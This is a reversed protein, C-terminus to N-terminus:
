TGLMSMAQWSLVTDLSAWRPVADLAPWLTAIRVTYETGPVSVVVYGAHLLQEWAARVDAAGGVPLSALDTNTKLLDNFRVPYYLLRM